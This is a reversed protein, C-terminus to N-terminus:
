QVPQTERQNNLLDRLDQIIRDFRSGTYIRPSPEPELICHLRGRQSVNLITPEPCSQADVTQRWLSTHKGGSPNGVFSLMYVHGEATGVLAFAAPSEWGTLPRGTLVEFRTRYEQPENDYRVRFAHGAILADRGCNTVLKPDQGVRVRGCNISHRGTLWWSRWDMADGYKSIFADSLHIPLLGTVVIAAAILGGVLLLRKKIATM